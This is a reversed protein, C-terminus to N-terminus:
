IIEKTKTTSWSVFGIYRVRNTNTVKTHKKLIKKLKMKMYITNFYLPKIKANSRLVVTHKYLM